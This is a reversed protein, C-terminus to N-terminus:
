KKLQTVGEEKGGGETVQGANQNIHVPIVQSNIM